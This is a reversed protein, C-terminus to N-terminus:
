PWRPARARLREGTRRVHLRARRPNRPDCPELRRPRGSRPEDRRALFTDPVTGRRGGLGGLGLAGGGGGPGHRAVLRRTGTAGGLLRAAECCGRSCDKRTDPRACHLADIRSGAALRRRTEILAGSLAAPGFDVHEAAGRATPRLRPLEQLGP